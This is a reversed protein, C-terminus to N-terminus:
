NGYFQDLPLGLSILEEKVQDYTAQWEPTPQINEIDNALQEFAIEGNQFDYRTFTKFPKKRTIYAALHDYYRILPLLENECNEGNHHNQCAERIEEDEINIEKFIKSPHKETKVFDHLMFAILLRQLEKPYNPGLGKRFILKKRIPEQEEQQYEEEKYNLWQVM